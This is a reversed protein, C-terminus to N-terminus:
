AEGPKYGAIFAQGTMEKKGAPILKDIKLASWKCFVVLEGNDIKLSGPAGVIDLLTTETIIVDRNALTTKSRPWGAYARIERELQQASKNWDIAAHEKSIRKDYTAASEDQPQPQLSGDLIAPLQQKLWLAASNDMADALQQKTNKTTLYGSEQGYVPGADMGAVLQMYSIGTNTDGDLIAAEIPISGRHKPLLSPHVNIIGRPFLDIIAQPVLKGYAVLIAAEADCAAIDDRADALSAPTLVPINHQEAVQVIELPRQKRSKGSDNQALVVAGIAYGEEILIRLISVETTTGTAIRENGFFLLKHSM